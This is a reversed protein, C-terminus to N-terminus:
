LWELTKTCKAKEMASWWFDQGHVVEFEKRDVTCRMIEQRDKVNIDITSLFSNVGESLGEKVAIAPRSIMVEVKAGGVEATDQGLIVSWPQRYKQPIPVIGKLKAAFLSVNQKVANEVGDAEESFFVEVTDKLDLGAAKRLQQVINILERSKGSSLLAEDQTCDVAVVTSGEPTSSSEWHSESKAFSLKSIIESETNISIGEIVIEGAELAALAEEHTLSEVKKKVAGMKKGLKKGLMKFNPQLSMKIWKEEEEKGIVVFDWANLESLIYEKLHGTISAIVSPSPDRLIVVVSKIPTRLSINRKERVYRGQEIITQLANMAEVAAPNSRTEDYKPLQLFHVSDSKGVMPPNTNGPSNEDYSPQKKRLHQYLHETIFPTFPSMLISVDLLVNYLVQLGTESDENEVMGKLRERNLRLYWNTL